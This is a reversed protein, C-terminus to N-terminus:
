AKIYQCTLVPCGRCKWSPRPPFDNNVFAEQYRQIRPALESWVNAAGERTVEVPGTTSKDKTWIFSCKITELRPQHLLLLCATLKLQLFNDDKRGTKYDFLAAKTGYDIVLDATARCYAAKGFWSTPKLNVDICMQYECLKTGQAKALLAAMSELHAIHMPLQVGQAVRLELAKHVAKGYHMQESEPEKWDKAISTAHFRRPCAEYNNLRSYSFATPTM